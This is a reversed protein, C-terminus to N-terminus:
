LRSWLWALLAFWALPAALYSVVCLPDLSRAQRRFGKSSSDLNPGGGIRLRRRVEVGWQVLWHLITRHSSRLYARGSDRPVLSLIVAANELDHRICIQQGRGIFLPAVLSVTEFAIDLAQASDCYAGLNIRVREDPPAGRATQIDIGVCSTLEGALGGILRHPGSVSGVLYTDALNGPTPMARSASGTQPARVLPIVNSENTPM